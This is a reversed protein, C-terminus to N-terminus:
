EDNGGNWIDNVKNEAWKGGAFSAGAVVAGMLVLGVGGTAVGFVLMLGYTAAGGAALGVVSGAAGRAAEVKAGHIDGKQYKDYAKYGAIGADVVVGIVAAGRLAQRAKSIKGLGSDVNKLNSASRVQAEEKIITKASDSLLGTEKTFLAKGVKSGDFLKISKQVLKSEASYVASRARKYMGNTTTVNSLEAEAQRIIVEYARMNIKLKTDNLTGYADKIPKLYDTTIDFYNDFSPNIGKSYVDQIGDTVLKGGAMFLDLLFTETAELTLTKQWASAASKADLLMQKVKASNRELAVVVVQGVQLLTMMQVNGLHANNERMIDWDIKNPTIFIRKM